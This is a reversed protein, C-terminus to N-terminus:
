QLKMISVRRAPSLKITQKMPTQRAASDNASCERTRSHRESYILTIEKACTCNGLFRQSIGVVANLSEFTNELMAAGM